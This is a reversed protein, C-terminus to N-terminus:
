GDGHSARRPRYTEYLADRWAVIDAYERALESDTFGRVSAKGLKLGFAPPAIFGLVQTCAIDAFTFSGLITGPVAGQAALARRLEDLVTRVSDRHEQASRANAGYKRLTRRLGFEAVRPALWGLAHRLGRPVMEAMAEDDRLQRELALARAASLGRESHAIWHAIAAEHVAPFLVPGSGRTDAFRAIKASDDYVRGHEDVLLPVSVVGRFRRVKLRLELEGLLPQYVRYRYPVKRVELAWCAKESWPSYPLGLLEIM